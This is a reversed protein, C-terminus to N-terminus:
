SPVILNVIEKTYAHRPATLLSGPLGEEVIEGGLIIYIYDAITSIISINHTILLISLGYQRRIKKILRMVNQQAHVDLATAPEDLILLEPQLAAAMALLCRQNEGGSLEFPYANLIQEPDSFDLSELLEILGSRSLSSSENIQNKIKLVPNLSAAANQPAYFVHKGRLLKLANTDVPEDKYLINGSKISIKEPLLASVARALITKGSGSEGLLVTIKDKEMEMSINNLIPTDGNTVVLDRVALLPM